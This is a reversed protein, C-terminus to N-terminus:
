LFSCDMVNEALRTVVLCKRQTYFKAVFEHQAHKPLLTINPLGIENFRECIQVELPKVKPYGFKPNLKM